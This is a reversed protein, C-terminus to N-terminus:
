KEEKTVIGKILILNLGVLIGIFFEIILKIIINSNEIFHYINPVIYESHHVFIGGAVLFMAVIGIYKLSITIYKLSKVFILGTKKFEKKILWYGIDDLRVILFVLGYVFIVAGLAVISVALMQQIFPKDLVTSFAIVIIEISLVFDTKIAGKIKKSDTEKKNNKHNEKIFLEKTGEIGEYSLFLAGLLLLVTILIPLYYGLIFILPLLIIKNKLAGISIKKVAVIERKASFKSSQEANVALDDGLISVTKKAAVKTMTATDDLLAFASTM